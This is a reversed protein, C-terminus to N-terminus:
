QRFKIEIIKGFFQVPLKLDNQIKVISLDFIPVDSEKIVDLSKVSGDRAIELRAVCETGRPVGILPSWVRDIEKQLIKQNASRNPDNEGLLNFYIIEDDDGDDSDEGLNAEKLKAEQKTEESEEEEVPQKKKTQKKPAPKKKKYSPEPVVHKKKSKIARKELKSIKTGNKNKSKGKGSTNKKSGFYKHYNGNNAAMPKFLTPTTYRSHCGYAIFQGKMKSDYTLFGFTLVVFVHLFLSVFLLRKDFRNNM